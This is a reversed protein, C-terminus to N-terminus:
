IKARSVNQFVGNKKEFLWGYLGHYTLDKKAHQIKNGNVRKEHEHKMLIKIVTVPFLLCLIIEVCASMM